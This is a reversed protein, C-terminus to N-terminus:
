LKAAAAQGRPLFQRYSGNNYAAWAGWASGARSIRAMAKANCEPNFACEDTVDPHYKSNIQWLGRDRSGAAEGTNSANVAGPFGTSEGLCVAVAVAVKDKPVGAALALRAIADDTLL